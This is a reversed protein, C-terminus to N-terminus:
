MKFKVKLKFSKQRKLKRVDKLGAKRTIDDIIADRAEDTEAVVTFWFNWTHDRLYAHTIEPYSDVALKATEINAEDLNAAILVGSMRWGAYNLIPGLRRVIGKDWMGQVRSIMEDETISFKEALAKFPRKTLPVETQIQNLIEKDLKDLHDTKPETM